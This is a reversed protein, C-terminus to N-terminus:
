PKWSTALGSPRLKDHTAEVMGLRTMAQDHAGVSVGILPAQTPMDSKRVSVSFLAKDAIHRELEECLTGYQSFPGGLVVAAPNLLTITAVIAKGIEGLIYERQSSLVDSGFLQQAAELSLADKGPTGLGADAVLHMLSKGADVDLYGIEGAMGRAGRHLRGSLFLGAGIGAGLYVFVFDNEEQMCGFASEALTAWNVDNDIFVPCSDDIGFDTLFHIGHGGPFPSHPLSMVDGSSPDVPDAVSFGIALQESGVERRSQVVFRKVLAIIDRKDSTHSMSETGEWVPEGKLNLARAGIRGSELAIGLSHGRRADIDYLVASRGQHGNTRQSTELVLAQRLLRQASESITPKSIGTMDAVAARSMPGFQRLCDLFRRDTITALESPRPLRTGPRKDAM